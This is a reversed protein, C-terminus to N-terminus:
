RASSAAPSATVISFVWTAQSPPWVNCASPPTAEPADSAPVLVQAWVAPPAM